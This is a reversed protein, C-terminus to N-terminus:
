TAKKASIVVFAGEGHATRAPELSTIDKLDRFITQCTDMKEYALEELWRVVRSASYFRAQRYFKNEQKHAEYSAGLPSDKDIMGILIQGGPKVVRSAEALASFPDRLFCLVTVMMVLDFSDACFPLAEAVARIVKIGRRRALNAMAAAPEVGVEVGLPVAFRGSGVGIELARVEPIFFKKLASIESEYALRHRDFWADYEQASEEFVQINNGTMLLVWTFF